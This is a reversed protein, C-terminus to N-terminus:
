DPLLDRLDGSSNFITNDFPNFMSWSGSNLHYVIFDGDMVDFIPLLEATKFDYGLEDDAAIIARSSLIRWDGIFDGNPAYSIIQKVDHPIVTEYKKEIPLIVDNRIEISPLNDLFERQNM